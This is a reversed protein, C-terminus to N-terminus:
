VKIYNGPVIAVSKSSVNFAAQAWRGHPSVDKIWGQDGAKMNKSEYDALALWPYGVCTQPMIDYCCADSLRTPSEQAPQPDSM